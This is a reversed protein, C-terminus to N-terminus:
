ASPLRLTRSAVEWDVLRPRGLITREDEPRFLASLRLIEAKQLESLTGWWEPSVYSNEVHALMFRALTDGLDEDGLLIFSDMLQPIATSEPPWAFVVYNSRGVGGVMGFMVPQVPRAMDGLDQLQQGQLDFTPTATGASALSLPGEIEFVAAGWREYARGRIIADAAQKYSYLDDRGLSVGGQYDGLRTQMRVQDDISRGRDVHERVGTLGEAAATKAFLEHCLARYGVRFTQEPTGLFDETEIARFLAADHISCFGPFTSANKWGVRSVVDRDTAPGLAHLALVHNTRDVIQALVRERQLTHARETRSCGNPADPHLCTKRKAAAMLLHRIASVPRAELEARDLHCKKYKKGSGCWCPANRGLKVRVM